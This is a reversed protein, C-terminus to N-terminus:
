REFLNPLAHREIPSLLFVSKEVVLLCGACNIDLKHWKVACTTSRHRAGEMARISGAVGQKCIRCGVIVPLSM